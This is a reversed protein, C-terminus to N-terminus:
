DNQINGRIKELSPRTFMQWYLAVIFIFFFLRGFLTHAIYGMNRGWTHILLIVLALRALNIAYVGLVGVLAMVTRKLPRHVPYFLILSFIICMEVLGSNEIDISITTWSTDIKILVLLTGPAKDFIYTVIGGYSLLQHLQLSTYTELRYEVLSAHFLLVLLCCLGVSAWIYYFVWLRNKHFFITIGLWIIFALAIASPSKHVLPFPAWQNDGKDPLRDFHGSADCVYFRMAQGPYLQLDEMPISFEFRNAGAGTGEGWIGNYKGKLDGAITYLYVYVDGRDQNQPRYSVAAYKDIRDTYRGNGNIDFFIKCDLPSSAPDFSYREVMFYLHTDNENTAWFVDKLDNGLHGDGETDGLHARGRWENFKGDLNCDPVLWTGPPWNLITLVVVASLSLWLIWRKM